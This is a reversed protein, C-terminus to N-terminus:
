ESTVRYPHQHTHSWGQSHFMLSHQYHHAIHASLWTAVERRQWSQLGPVSVAIQEAHVKIVKATQEGPHSLNSCSRAM